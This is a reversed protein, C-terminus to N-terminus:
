KSGDDEAPRSAAPGPAFAEPYLKVKAAAFLDKMFQETVEQTRARQTDARVRDSAEDLGIQRAERRAVVKIVHFGGEGKYPKDLVSGAEAKFIAEHLAKDQGVGPVRHVLQSVPQDILGGKEKTTADLSHAKALAEFTAGGKLDKILGAAQAETKCVIHAITAQGPEVYREKNAEYFRKCDDVTVTARRGVEEGLLRNAMLMDSMEMLRKRFAPTKDLGDARAKRALVKVSVLEQLKRTRAELSEYQKAFRKRIQETQEASLGPMARITLDMEQNLMRDFDAATIKEAGIEAVVQRGALGATKDGKAATREALDRDLDGYQGLKVFCDRVRVNIEHRLEDQGKGAMAEAQYFAAIADQYREASQHLKGIRYQVAAQPESTPGALELYRSWARAAAAHLNRDELRMALSKQQDASWSAAGTGPKEAGDDRHMLLWVVVGFMALVCVSSFASRRDFVPRRAAPRQPLELKPKDSM